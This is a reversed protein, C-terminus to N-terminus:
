LALCLGRNSGHPIFKRLIYYSVLALHLGPDVSHQILESLFIFFGTGPVPRTKLWAPYIDAFIYNLL